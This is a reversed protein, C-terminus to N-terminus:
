AGAQEPEVSGSRAEPNLSAAPGVPDSAAGQGAPRRGPLTPTGQRHRGGEIETRFHRKLRLAPLELFRYSLAATIFSVAFAVVNVLDITLNQAGFGPGNYNHTFHHYLSAATTFILFHWLYLGYSRRGIWVALRSSLLRRLASSTEDRVLGVLILASALVAASIDQPPAKPNATAFVALLVIMGLWM